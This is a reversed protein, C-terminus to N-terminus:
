FPDPSRKRRSGRTAPPESARFLALKEHVRSPRRSPPLLQPTPLVGSTISSLADCLGGPMSLVLRRLSGIPHFLLGPDCVRLPTLSGLACLGGLPTLSPRPTALGETAHAPPLPRLGETAHCPQRPSSLLVANQLGVPSSPSCRENAKHPTFGTSGATM